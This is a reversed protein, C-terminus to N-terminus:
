VKKWEALVLGILIFFCGVYGSIPLVEALFIFALLASAVPELLLLLGVRTATTHKQSIIQLPTVIATCFVALYVLPVVSIYIQHWTFDEFAVTIVTSAVAMILLQLMSFLYCDVNKVQKEVFLVYVAYCLSCMMALFDGFNFRGQWGTMLYLGLICCFISVFVFIGPMRRQIVANILTIFVIALAGIFAANGVSTYNLSVLQFSYTTVMLVGAISSIKWELKGALRFHKFYISGLIIFALWFRISQMIFPPLGLVVMKNVVTGSGWLVAMVALGIDAWNQQKLPLGKKQIGEVTELVMGGQIDILFLKLAIGIVCQM